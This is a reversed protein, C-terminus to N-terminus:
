AAEAAVDAITLGAAGAGPRAHAGRVVFRRAVINVVLTLVFLLIFVYRRM